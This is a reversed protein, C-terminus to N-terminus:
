NKENIEIVASLHFSYILAEKVELGTCLALAKKYLLLQSSYKERFEEESDILDTKYDIVVLKGDEEFACDCAGQIMVKEDPFDEVNEYVDSIPVEIIFRKERLVNSSALIREFLKSKLFASVTRRNIAKAEASSLMGSSELRAIEQELNEKAKEYDAFQVFHHTATGKQAGTLGGECLFAPRSSAFYERDVGGKDASSATRKVTIGSLREYKYRFQSREKVLELFERDSETSVAAAEEACPVTDRHSIVVKLPSESALVFSEDLGAVSRLQQADKHRMLATIIWQGFSKANRVAYPVIKKSDRNLATGYRRLADDLKKEGHVMILKEKARTLAVYLVRLEESVADGHIALKVANHPVSEFVEYTEVDRRKIAVGCRRNLVLNAKEDQSNFAGGCNAVICVPFELGKSKHVTMIRVVDANGCANLAGTLDQKRSSLRDIFSVFGGLGRYGSKEYTLAYDLLLRLNASKTGSTDVADFVSLLATEDYIGSILEQTPLCVSMSRWESLKELFSICQGDGQSSKELLCSYVSSKRNKKKIQAVKDVSFGFLPSMMVSLMPIDQAPNDIVRLLNLVLAIEKSTLFSDSVETFCPIGKSRFTDAYIVGKGSSLSRMLVAFDKYTARREGDGEKVTYGQAIMQNILSAVYRAQYEHSSEDTDEDTALEILHLESDACQKEGYQASATLREECDYEIGGCERSMIQEFIFNVTDTVGKRSRFNNALIIKCPYNDRQEDYLEVSDKLGTFIEPMAQRFSYISQKVDGVRFINNRSISTFLLSQAGNTDQYEDILIEDYCESISKALPTSEWGDGRSEVLLSLAMFMIDAFDALKRSKKLESYKEAFLKTAEVLSRVADAFYLKDARYDAGSCCLVGSLEKMNKVGTDRMSVLSALYVDEKYEKPTNGRRAPAFRDVAARIEDWSGEAIRSLIYECQAKDTSVANNFIKEYVENGESETLVREFLALSYNVAQTLNDLIFKGHISDKVDEEVCYIDALSDLWKSPFAYSCSVEYLREVAEEVASDNSGTFLLEVLKRFPEGGEKYMQELAEDAAQKKIISLEGEDATRFDPSIDLLEFNEKVLSSCFSDITCIKAESLLMQQRILRANGPDKRLLESVAKAIRERMEEAALRTFTVILLRDADTPNEEDTIREIVRQVLVATKGSGAAASVLVSGRRAKIADSQQKTWNRSM